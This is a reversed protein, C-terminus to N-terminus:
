VKVRQNRSPIARPPHFQIGFRGPAERTRWNTAESGTGGRGTRAAGGRGRRRERVFAKRAQSALCSLRPNERSEREPPSRCWAPVVPQAPRPPAPGPNHSGGNGPCDAGPRGGRRTPAGRVTAGGTAWAGLQALEVNKLFVFLPGPLRGTGAAPGGRGAAPPPRACACAMGGPRVTGGGTASRAGAPDRAGEGSDDEPPPADGEGGVGATFAAAVAPPPVPAPALPAPFAGGAAGGAGGATYM